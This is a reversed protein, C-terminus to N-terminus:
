NTYILDKEQMIQQALLPHIYKSSVVDVSTQLINELEEQLNFYDVYDITENFDVVLDVDSDPHQDGRAYSGFVEVTKIPYRPAIEAVAQKIDSLTM